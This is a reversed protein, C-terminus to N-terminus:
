GQNVGSFHAAACLNGESFRVRLDDYKLGYRHREVNIGILGFYCEIPERRGIPCGQM